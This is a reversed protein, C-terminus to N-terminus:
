QKMFSSVARWRRTTFGEVAVVFRSDQKQMRADCRETERVGVGLTLREM